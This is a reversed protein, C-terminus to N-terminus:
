DVTFWHLQLPEAYLVFQLSVGVIILAATMVLSRVAVEGAVPLRRLAAGSSRATALFGTQVAWAALAIGVGHLGSRLSNALGREAVPDILLRYAIGVIFGSILFAALLGPHRAAYRVFIAHGSRYGPMGSGVTPASVTSDHDQLSM